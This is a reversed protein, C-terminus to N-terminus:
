VNACAWAMAKHNLVDRELGSLDEGFFRKLMEVTSGERVAMAEAEALLEDPTAVIGQEAIVAKLVKPEKAEFVAAALLEDEQEALEADPFLHMGEGTMQAYMMRHKLDARILRLEEEVRERPVEIDYALVFARWKEDDTM